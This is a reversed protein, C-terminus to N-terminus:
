SSDCNLLFETLNGSCVIEHGHGFYEHHDKGPCTGICKDARLRHTVTISHTKGRTTKLM